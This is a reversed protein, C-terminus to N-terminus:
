LQEKVWLLERIISGTIDTKLEEPLVEWTYTEVELHETFHEEKLINLLKVIENNTSQHNKFAAMFVPVHFHIRWEVADSGDLANLAEPLDRYKKLEQNANIAAVQHLYTSETFPIFSEKVRSKETQSSPILTKLAASIQVKGIRIGEKKMASVVDKPEEYALAYHCVDYCLQIHTRIAEEAVAKSLQKEKILLRSGVPLLYENYFNIVDQTNELFGDPEPEIDLHLLKGKQDYIDHLQAVITILNHVAKEKVVNLEAESKYWPKYSIPSTSIGAHEGENTLEALIQFLRQTYKTREDTTWDPLHVGDKVRQKHFKGFPFGNMTFVYCQEQKLWSKFEELKPQELLERSSLDSLRLGIGFPSQPSVESRVKLLHVNLGNMVEEWSEGPHINTCYSLHLNNKVKM